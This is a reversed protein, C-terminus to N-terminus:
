EIGSIQIHRIREINQPNQFVCLMSIPYENQIGKFYRACYWVPSKLIEPIIDSFLTFHQRMRGLLMWNTVNEQIANM